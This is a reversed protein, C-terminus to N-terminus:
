WYNIGKTHNSDWGNVKDISSGKQIIQTESM